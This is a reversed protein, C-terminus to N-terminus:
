DVSGVYVFPVFSVLFCKGVQVRQFVAILFVLLFPFLLQLSASESANADEGKVGHEPIRDIADRLCETFKLM